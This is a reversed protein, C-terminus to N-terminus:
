YATLTNTSSFAGRSNSKYIRYEITVNFQNTINFVVPSSFDSIVSTSGDMNIVSLAGGLSTPYLIYSFNSINNTEASGNFAMPLSISIPDMRLISNAFPTTDYIADAATQTSPLTNPSALFKVAFRNLNVTTTNNNAGNPNTPHGTTPLVRYIISGLALDTNVYNDTYSLTGDYPSPFTYITTYTSGGNISRQLVLSNIPVNSSNVAISFTVISSTNGKERSIPSEGSSSSNTVRTATLSNVTPQSYATPDRTVTTEAFYVANDVDEVRFKYTFGNTAYAALTYSDSFSQSGTTVTSFNASTHILTYTVDSAGKDKRYVLVRISRNLNSNPNNANYTVTLSGSTQNFPITGVTTTSFSPNQVLQVADVIIDLASKYGSINITDGTVYRGFSKGTPISVPINANRALTVNEFSDGDWFSGHGASMSPLPDISSQNVSFPGTVTNSDSLTTTVVKNTVSVSTVSKGDAGAPGTAGAPGAAGTLGIPGQDGTDGKPGQPGTAGAAGTAGQLGQPGQPGQVGPNGQPGAPGAPGAPGQPGAAGDAGAPGQPGAPGATASALMHATVIVSPIAPEIDQAAEYYLRVTADESSWRIQVYDGADIDFFYNWSAVVKANNKDLEIRTNSDPITVGNKAFWIEAHDVGSDTKDFQASFQVNYVGANAFTLKNNDVVTVENNIDTIPFNMTNMQNAGSSAQISTSYFSGYYVETGQVVTPIQNYPYISLSNVRQVATGVSQTTPLVFSISNSQQNTLNLVVTEDTSVSLSNRDVQVTSVSQSSPVNVSISNGPPLTFGVDM